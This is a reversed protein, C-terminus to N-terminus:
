GCQLLIRSALQHSKKQTTDQKECRPIFMWGGPHDSQWASSPMEYLVGHTIVSMNVSDINFCVIGQIEKEKKKAGAANM